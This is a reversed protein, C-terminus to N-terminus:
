NPVGESNRFSQCQPHRRWQMQGCQNQMCRYLAFETRAGCAERPTSPAPTSNDVGASPVSAALTVAPPAMTVPPNGRQPQAQPQVATATPRTPAAPVSTTPAPNPPPQVTGTAGTANNTNPLAPSSLQGSPTAAAPNADSLRSLATDAEHMENLQWAAGAAVGILLLVVGVTGIRRRWSPRASRASIRSAHAARENWPVDAMVSDSATSPVFLTSEGFGPESKAAAPTAAAPPPPPVVRDTLVPPAAPPPPEPAAAPASRQDFSALLNLVSVSANPQPTGAARPTADVAPEPTSTESTAAVPAPAPAPASVVPVEPPTDFMKRFEAVSATRAHPPQALLEDIVRLFAPNYRLSPTAIRLGSVVEELPDRWQMDFQNSLPWHGSICFYLLAAVAHLDPGLGPETDGPTDFVAGNSFSPDLAAMLSQSQSSVLAGRVADFDMLVPQGDPQMMVNTPTIRRHVLGAKHLTELVDLLVEILARLWTESPPQKLGQRWTLLSTGEYFPMARYVTGNAEWLRLVRLLCVHNVRALRRAEDVFAAQGRQFVELHQVGRPVVQLAANRTAVSTPLYEKIAIPQQLTLDTAAYVIGFSSTSVVRGIEFYELRTGPALAHTPATGPRPDTSANPPTSM